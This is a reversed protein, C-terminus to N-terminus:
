ATRRAAAVTKLIQRFKEAYGEKIIIGVDVGFLLIEVSYFLLLPENLFHLEFIRNCKNFASKVRCFKIRGDLSKFVAFLTSFPAESTILKTEHLQPTHM